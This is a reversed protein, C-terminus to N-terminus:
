LVHREGDGGRRLSPASPVAICPANRGEGHSRSRAVERDVRPREALPKEALEVRGAALADRRVGARILVTSDPVRRLRGTLQGATAEPIPPSAPVRSARARPPSALRASRALASSAARRTVLVATLPEPGSPPVVRPRGRLGAGRATRARAELQLVAHRELLVLGLAHAARRDPDPPVHRRHARGRRRGVELRPSARADTGSSRQDLDPRPVPAAGSATASGRDMITERRARASRGGPEYRAARDAAAGRGM